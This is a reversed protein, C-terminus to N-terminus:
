KSEAAKKLDSMFQEFSEDFSPIKNAFLPFMFSGIRETMSVIVKGSSENLEYVRQGMSGKLVLRKGPVFEKVKLKFKRNPDLTSVLTIKNGPRIQGDISVVTSNWDTYGESETLLKWIDAADADISEQISTTRSFTKKVTTAKGMQASAHTGVILMCAIIPLRM